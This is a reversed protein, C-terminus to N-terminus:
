SDSGVPAQVADVPLLYIEGGKFTVLFQDPDSLVNMIDALM